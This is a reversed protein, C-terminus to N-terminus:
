KTGRLWSWLRKYWPERFLDCLAQDIDPEAPTAGEVLWLPDPRPLRDHTYGSPIGVNSPLELGPIVIELDVLDKSAEKSAEWPIRKNSAELTSTSLRSMPDQAGKVENIIEEMIRITDSTDIPM